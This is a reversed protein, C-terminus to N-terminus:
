PTTLTEMRPLLTRETFQHGIDRITTCAVRLHRHPTRLEEMNFVPLPPM